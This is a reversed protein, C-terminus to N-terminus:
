ESAGFGRRRGTEPNIAENALAMSFLVDVNKAVGRYLALAAGYESYASQLEKRGQPSLASPPSYATLAAVLRIRAANVVWASRDLATLTVEIKFYNSVTLEPSISLLSSDRMMLWTTDSPGYPIWAPLPTAVFPANDREERITALALLNANVVAIVRNTEELDTQVTKRNELSEEQLKEAMELVQHRHHLYEVTQELGIAILLGISITALHIFFDKWTHVTGPPAHVDLMPNQSEQMAATQASPPIAELSISPSASDVHAHVPSEPIASEPSAGEPEEQSSAVM